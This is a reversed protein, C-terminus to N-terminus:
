KKVKKFYLKTSLVNNIFVQKTLGSENLLMTYIDNIKNLDSDCKMQVKVRKLKLTSNINEYNCSYDLPKNWWSMLCSDFLPIFEELESYIKCAGVDFYLSM